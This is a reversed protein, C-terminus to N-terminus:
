YIFDLFDKSENVLKESPTKGVLKNGWVAYERLLVRTFLGEDEVRTVKGFADGYKDIDESCNDVYQTVIYNKQPTRNLFARIVAFDIATKIGKDLFPKCNLLLTNRVYSATTNIINQTNDNDYKLLVIAKGPELCVKGHKDPKVWRIILEPLNLEPVIRNLSRVSSEGNTEISLKIYTTKFWGCTSALFSMIDNLCNRVNNYYKMIVYFALGFGGLSSLIAVIITEM